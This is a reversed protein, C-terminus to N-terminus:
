NIITMIQNPAVNFMVECVRYFFMIDYSFKYRYKYDTKM